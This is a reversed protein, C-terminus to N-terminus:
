LEKKPKGKAAAAARKKLREELEKEYDAITGGLMQRLPELYSAYRKWKGVSTLYLPKRVQAMSATAVSRGEQEHFKIVADEWPLGTAKLLEEAVERPYSVLEEYFVTIVRKPYHQDWHKAIRFTMNIQYAIDKLDWAWPMGAYGFPQAYCSMGADMPHRKVHIIVSKPLMLDIYGVLWLNRLMKDVIRKVNKGKGAGKGGASSATRVLMSQRMGDVYQKGLKQLAASITDQTMGPSALMSNVVPTLPALLTDEGAGWAKSHSSIMQEILTSGSRPLGVVFVPSRDENGKITEFRGKFVSTVVDFTRVDNDIDPQLKKMACNAKELAVWARDYHGRRERAKYVGFGLWSLELDTTTSIWNTIEPITRTSKGKEDGREKVISMAEDYIVEAQHLLMDTLNEMAAIAKAFSVFDKGHSLSATEIYIEDAKVVKGMMSYTKAMNFLFSPDRRGQIEMAREIHLLSEHPLAADLYLAALNGNLQAATESNLM